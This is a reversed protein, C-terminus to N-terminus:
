NRPNMLELTGSVGAADTQFTITLTTGSLVGTANCANTASDSVFRLGPVGARWNSLTWTDADNIPSFYYSSVAPNDNPKFLNSGNVGNSRIASPPYCGVGKAAPTRAAM